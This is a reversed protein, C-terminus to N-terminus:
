TKAIGLQSSWLESALPWPNFRCGQLDISQQLMVPAPKGAGGCVEHGHGLWHGTEHNIVMHRYDRLTGGTSNWSASAGMWRDQNIIINKGVRCSYEASCGTSFSPVLTAESLILTFMGGSPVERFSVGMRSWGRADNLTANAMERFETMNAGIVGKGSVSYTVEYSAVQKKAAEAANQQKLWTPDQLSPAKLTAATRQLEQLDQLQTTVTTKSAVDSTATATVGAVFLLGFVIAVSFVMSYIMRM